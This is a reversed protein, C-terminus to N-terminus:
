KPSKAVVDGLDRAEGPKLVVDRALPLSALKNRISPRFQYKVGPILREITFWGDQGVEVQPIPPELAVVQVDRRPEGDEGVVRGSVTAWPKLEVVLPEDGEAAIEALVILLRAQHEFLLKRKEGPALHEITFQSGELPWVGRNLIRIMRAGELPRGNPDVVTGTRHAGPDVLVDCHVSEAGESPEIATLANFEEPRLRSPNTWFSSDVDNSGEIAAAGIGFAYDRSITRVAIVGGGPYALVRYMGDKSTKHRFSTSDLPSEGSKKAVYPNDAWVFYSVDAEVGAGTEKDSVRGEVWVGRALAFDLQIDDRPRKLDARLTATLYPRDADPLVVLRTPEVRTPVGLLRYRGVADTTSNFRGLSGDLENRREARVTLGPIPEGTAQDRVIGEIRCGPTAVHEFTAGYVLVDDWTDPSNFSEAGRAVAPVRIPAGPRTMVQCHTSALGNGDIILNLVREAGGADFEFRGDGGTVLPYRALEGFVADAM